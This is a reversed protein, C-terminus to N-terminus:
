RWYEKISKEITKIMNKNEINSLLFGNILLKRAELEGIGRTQLYFLEEPDFGGILASHNAVTDFENIYLNPRIECKNDTLNIIRNFQNINCGTIGNDVYGSVQFYIKGDKTCISNNIINSSTNKNNHSVVIDYVEKTTAISKFNYDISSNIGNLNAIIMERVNLINNFKYINVKSDKNTNFTYQIKGKDGNKYEYLDLKVKPEINFLIDLKSNDMIYDIELSCSKLVNIVIKTIGFTNTRIETTIDLKNSVNELIVEEKDIVIKNM